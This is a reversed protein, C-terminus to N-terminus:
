VCVRLPSSMMGKYTSPPSLHSSSSSFDLAHSLDFRGRANELDIKYARVCACVCVRVCVCVCVVVCVYM